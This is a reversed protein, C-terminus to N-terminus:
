YEKVLGKRKRAVFSVLSLGLAFLALTQPEPVASAHAMSYRETFVSASTADAQDLNLVWSLDMIESLHSINDPEFFALDFSAPQLSWDNEITYFDSLFTEIDTTNVQTAGLYLDLRPDATVTVIDSIGITIANFANNPDSSNLAIDHSVRIEGSNLGEPDFSSNLIEGWLSVQGALSWHGEPDVDPSEFVWPDEVWTKSVVSQTQVSSDASSRTSVKAYYWDLAPAKYHYIDWESGANSGSGVSTPKSDEIHLGFGWAGYESAPPKAEYVTGGITVGPNAYSHDYKMKWDGVPPENDGLWVRETQWGSSTGFWDSGNSAAASSAIPGANGTLPFLSSVTIAIIISKLNM